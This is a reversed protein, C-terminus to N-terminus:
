LDFADIVSVGLGSTCGTDVQVTFSAAVDLSSASIGAWTAAMHLRM